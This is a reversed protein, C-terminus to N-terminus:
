DADSDLLRLERCAAHAADQEASKKTSGTGQGMQKGDLVVTVLYERQHATGNMTQLRYHPRGGHEKQAYVQLLSKFDRILAGEGAQILTKELATLVFKRVQEWGLTLYIAACVAEFTDALLSDRHAGGSLKEGRGLRIYQGLQYHNAAQALAAESVVLAKAKALKGVLCGPFRRYLEESVLIGIIADGLFELRENDVGGSGTEHAYSTHTLAVALLKREIGELGWRSIFKEVM